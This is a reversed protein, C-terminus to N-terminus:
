QRGSRVTDDLAGSQRLYGHIYQGYARLDDLAGQLLDYVLVLDVDLYEHVLINRFGAVDAFGAAFDAPLVGVQGLLRILDYYSDPRDEFDAALVHNAVDICAQIALQFSREVARHNRVDDKFEDLSLSRFQDLEAVYRNLAELRKVVTEVHVM